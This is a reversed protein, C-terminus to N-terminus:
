AAPTSVAATVSSIERPAPVKKDRRRLMPIEVLYYSLCAAALALLVLFGSRLSPDACFPQQWLYLSYSIKGLWSVPRWNLFAYPSQVVHLLIGVISFRLVPDLLFVLLLTKGRTNAAYLPVLAVAIVMVLAAYRKIKPLRPAVMALLCGAALDGAVGPFGGVDGGRFKALYLITQGVPTLAIVSLLIVLRHKYWQKLVSPWLLYFQEEVSLSWLHGFIWPRSSDFNALYFFAAAINYWRFDRWYAVVMILMFVLAAPFIRYARRVYFTRLSITSTETRENSLITTILFGSIVFFIRVGTTAYYQWFIQPAHGSKALHGLVVLLISIARLGDLSPIRKV